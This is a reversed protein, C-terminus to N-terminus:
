NWAGGGGGGAGGSGGGGGGGGGSSSSSPAPTRNSTTPATYTTAQQPQAASAGTANARLSQLLPTSVFGTIPAGIDRQYARIADRTAKTIQGDIGGRLYGLQGLLVEIERNESASMLHDARPWDIDRFGVNGQGPPACGGLFVLVIAPSIFSFKWTM